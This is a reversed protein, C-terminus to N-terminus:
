LDEGATSEPGTPSAVRVYVRDRRATRGGPLDRRRGPRGAALDLVASVADRTWPAVEDDVAALRWLAMRVVRAALPVPLAALDAARFRVEGGDREVIGRELDAAQRLLELRDEHLVSATRALTARVERGTIRELMPIAEHRIAARLLRTDENMPDRRPRLGLSRCFAETEERTVDLLPQVTSSGPRDGLKPWIGALGDLGTGRVLNLLV